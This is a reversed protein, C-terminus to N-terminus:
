GKWKKTYIPLQSVRKEQFVKWVLCLAKEVEEQRIEKICCSLEM